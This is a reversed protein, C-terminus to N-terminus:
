SDNMFLLRDVFFDAAFFAVFVVLRRRRLTFFVDFLTVFFLLLVFFAIFFVGELLFLDTFCAALFVVFLRLRRRLFYTDNRKISLCPYAFVTITRQNQM